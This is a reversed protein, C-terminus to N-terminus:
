KYEKIYFSASPSGFTFKTVETDVVNTSIHASQIGNFRLLESMKQMGMALSPVNCIDQLDGNSDEFFLVVHGEGHTISEDKKFNFAKKNLKEALLRKETNEYEFDLQNVTKKDKLDKIESNIYFNGDM